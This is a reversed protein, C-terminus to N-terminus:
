LNQDPTQCTGTAGPVSGALERVVARATRAGDHICDPIGVGRYAAGTLHLGRYPRLSAQILALRDLHGLTYQPMAREWRNVEVYIPTAAIGAMSRLEERMRGVLAEDDCTLLEEQGMRGAYCRVLVHTSPARHPWKLSTWTAAILDRHEVRPVVFGFGTVSEGLHERVYALSVTAVSAYPIEALLGAATPSLSRLLSASAFAPTALVVADAPVQTGDELQLDYRGPGPGASSARLATVKRNPIMTAGAKGIRAVLAQVLEDLGDRLSVFMTRGTAEGPGM